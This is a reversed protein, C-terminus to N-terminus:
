AGAGATVAREIRVDRLGTRALWVRVEGLAAADGAARAAMALLLADGPERQAAWNDRAHRLALAADGRELAFWGAERAHLLEGRATATAFREALRAALATADEGSRRAIRWRRLLVADTQPADALVARAQQPRGLALWADALALRTYLDDGHALSQSFARAAADLAGSREHVEGALSLAWGRLPLPGRAALSELVALAQAQRGTLADVAATCIAAVAAAVPVIADCDARASAYDGRVQAITARTLRAQLHAPERRVVRDLLALAADFRHRSQEITARLVLADADDLDALLAEAYGLLRPDGDARSAEVLTRAQAIRAAPPPAPSLLARQVHAKVARPALQTEVVADRPQAQVVAAAFSFLAVGIAVRRLREGFALGPLGRAGRRARKLPSASGSRWGRRLEARVVRWPDGAADIASAEAGSAPRRRAPSGAVGCLVVGQM